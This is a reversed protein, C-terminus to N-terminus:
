NLLHKRLPVEFPINCKKNVGQTHITATLFFKIKPERSRPLRQINFVKLLTIYFSEYEGQGGEEDPDDLQGAAESGGSMLCTMIKDDQEIIM